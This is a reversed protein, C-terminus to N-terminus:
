MNIMGELSHVVDGFGAEKLWDAEATGAIM